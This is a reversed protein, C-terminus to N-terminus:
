EGHMYYIRFMLAVFCTTSQVFTSLLIVEIPGQDHDRFMIIRAVGVFPYNKELCLYLLNDCRMYLLDNCTIRLVILMPGLQDSDHDVYFAM